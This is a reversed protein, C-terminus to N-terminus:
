RLVQATSGELFYKNSEKGPRQSCCSHQPRCLSPQWTQSPSNDQDQMHVWASPVRWRKAAAGMAQTRLRLRPDRPGSAWYSEKVRVVCSDYLLPRRQTGLNEVNHPSLEEMM